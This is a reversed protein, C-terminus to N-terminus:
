KNTKRFIFWIGFLAVFVGLGAGLLQTGNIGPYKGIGVLDAVLSGTLILVGAAVLIFGITKKSM